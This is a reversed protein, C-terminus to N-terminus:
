STRLPSFKWFVLAGSQSKPNSLMLYGSPATLMLRIPLKMKDFDKSVRMHSQSQRADIARELPMTASCQFTVPWQFRGSELRKVFKRVRRENVSTTKSFSLNMVESFSLNINHLRTICFYVAMDGCSKSRPSQLRTVNYYLICASLGLKERYLALNPTCGASDM